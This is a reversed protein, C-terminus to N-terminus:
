STTNARHILPPCFNSAKSGAPRIINELGPLLPKRSSSWQWLEDILIVKRGPGRKCVEFTWDMFWTLGKILRAGPYYIHPNFCVWRSPLAAECQDLTACSPLCLRRAAQGRDDFIFRCSFKENLLYSFAFSTKGGSSQGFILTISSPNSYDPMSTSSKLLGNLEPAAILPWTSSKEPWVRSGKQSRVGALLLKFMCILESKKVTHKM